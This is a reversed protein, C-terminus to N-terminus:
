RRFYGNIHVISHYSLFLFLACQVLFLPFALPRPAEVLKAGIVGFCFIFLVIEAGILFIWRFPTDNQPPPPRYEAQRIPRQVPEHYNPNRPIPRAM